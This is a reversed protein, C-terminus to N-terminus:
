WYASVSLVSFLMVIGKRASCRIGDHEVEQIRRVEDHHFLATIFGKMWFRVTTEDEILKM